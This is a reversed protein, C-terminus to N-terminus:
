LRGAFRGPALIRGPDFEQKLRQMIAFDARTPGFVDIDRKFALPAAEVVVTGGFRQATQTARELLSGCQTERAPLLNARIVGVAVTTSLRAGAGIFQRDLLAMAHGAESPPVSTRLALSAPAFAARWQEWAMGDVDVFTALSQAALVQLEHLTRDVTREGGAVQLLLAWSSRDIVLHAATPSLLEAADLALGADRAALVIRAAGGASTTTLAVTRSVRPLPALKFTAEAIVGLTGVAGIHLKHMDYGTVNKVVRGGSKSTTGDAHVVRLGILWDRATGYRHRLPGFANMALVGGITADARPVDIPLQQGHDALTAQVRALPMGAEVSITLDAPEYAVIQDMRALSLAIDYSDPVNGYEMQTGAGRAIVGRGARSAERLVTQTEPISSVAVALSPTIGDVAYGDLTRTEIQEDPVLPRIADVVEATATAGTVSSM